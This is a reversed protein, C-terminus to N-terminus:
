FFYSAGLLGGVSNLGLNRDATDANSIHRYDAELFFACHDSCLYRVGFGAQLNFAFSSGFVRQSGHDSIDNYIGGAQIQAYPVWRASPQVFNYRLTFNAGIYGTGPGEVLAAGYLEVLFECNGRFFGDGEPTYLMRGLRFAVDVDTFKPRDSSTPQFSTFAGVGVQLELKGKDFPTEVVTEKMEKGAHATCTLLSLGIVCLLIAIKM